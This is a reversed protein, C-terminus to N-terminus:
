HSSIAARLQPEQGDQSGHGRWLVNGKSDLLLVYAVQDDSVNFFKKWKDQDQTLVVMRDQDASSMGKRMGSKIAGRIFSPAGALMAVQYVEVGSLASDAHIAKMWDGTRTGGEHSFGAVIVAAHGRVAEALVMHKGSLTEGATAPMEQASAHVGVIAAMALVASALFIRSLRM